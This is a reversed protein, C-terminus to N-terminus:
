GTRRWGAGIGQEAGVQEPMPDPPLSKPDLPLPPEFSSVPLPPLSGILKERGEVRGSHDLDDKRIARTM